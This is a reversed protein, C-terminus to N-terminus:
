SGEEGPPLHKDERDLGEHNDNVRFDNAHYHKCIVRAYFWRDIGAKELLECAIFDESWDEYKYTYDFSFKDLVAKSMLLCGFGFGWVKVVEGSGVLEQIRSYQVNTLTDKDIIVSQKTGKYFYLGSIVDKDQAILFPIADLIVPITDTDLWFLYDYDKEIAFSRIIDRSYALRHKTTHYQDYPLELVILPRDNIRVEELMAKKAAVSEASKGNVCLCVDYDEYPQESIWKFWENISYEKGDGIPAAILVKM